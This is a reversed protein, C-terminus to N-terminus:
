ILFKKLSLGLERGTQISQIIYMQNTKLNKINRIKKTNQNKFYTQVYAERLLQLIRSYQSLKILTQGSFSSLM